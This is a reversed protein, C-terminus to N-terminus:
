IDIRCQKSIIDHWSLRPIRRKRHNPPKFQYMKLPLREAHMRTVHGYWNLVEVKSYLIDITDKTRERIYDNRVRKM